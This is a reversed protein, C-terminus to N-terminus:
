FPCFAKVIADSFVINRGVEVYPTQTLDSLLIQSENTCPYLFDM